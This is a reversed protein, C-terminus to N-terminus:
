EKPEGAVVYAWLADIDDSKLVDDWPPMNRKGNMVSDVFRERADRPFMRLDIAWQPNRMHTGHCTACHLAFLQSGKEIQDPPFQPTQAAARVGNLALGVSVVALCKHRTVCGMM